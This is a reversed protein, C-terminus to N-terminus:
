NVNTRCVKEIKPMAWPTALKTSGDDGDVNDDGDGSGRMREHDDAVHFHNSVIHCQPKWVTLLCKGLSDLPSGPDGCSSEM